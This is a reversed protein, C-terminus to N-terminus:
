WGLDGGSATFPDSGISTAGETDGFGDGVSPGFGDDTFASSQGFGDDNSNSPEGFGHDNSASPKGFGDDNSFGPQGFGDDCRDEAESKDFQMTSAFDSNDFEKGFGTDEDCQGKVSSDVDWTSAGHKPRESLMPPPTVGNMPVSSPDDFGDTAAAAFADAGVNGGFPDGFGDATEVHQTGDGRRVTTHLGDGFSSVDNSDGFGDSATGGFGDDGFTSVMTEGDGFNNFGDDQFGNVSSVGLGEPAGFPDSFDTPEGGFGDTGSAFPNGFGDDAETTGFVGFGDPATSPFVESEDFASNGFGDDIGNQLEPSDNDESDAAKSNGFDQESCQKEPSSVVAKSAGEM